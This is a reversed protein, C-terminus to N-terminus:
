YVREKPPFYQVDNTLTRSHVDRYKIEVKNGNQWALTRKMFNKDDRKSVVYNPGSVSIHIESARYYNRKQITTTLCESYSKYRSHFVLRLTSFLRYLWYHTSIVRRAIFYHIVM